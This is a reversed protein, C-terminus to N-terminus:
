SIVKIIKAPNGAVITYPPVDKTVVAGAAVVAGRGITVGPMIISRMGISANDEIIIPKRIYPLENQFDGKHYLHMNRKHTLLLCQSTIITNDGIEILNYGDVDLYIGYGLWVNKGVKIGIKRWLFPRVQHFMQSPLHPFYSAVFWLFYRWERRAFKVIKKIIM